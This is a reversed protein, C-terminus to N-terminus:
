RGRAGTSSVAVESVLGGEKYSSASIFRGEEQEEEQQLQQQQQLQQALSQVAVLLERQTKQMAELTTLMEKQSSSSSSASSHTLLYRSYWDMVVPVLYRKVGVAAAALVGVGLVVQVPPSFSISLPTLLLSPNRIQTPHCGCPLWLAALIMIYLTEYM